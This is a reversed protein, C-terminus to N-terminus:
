RPDHYIWVPGAFSYLAHLLAWENCAITVPPYADIWRSVPGILYTSSDDIKAIVYGYFGIDNDPDSTRKVFVFDDVDFTPAYSM